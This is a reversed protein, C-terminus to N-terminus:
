DKVCRVSLGLRKEIQTNQIGSVNCELGWVNALKDASWFHCVYGFEYFQGDQDRFGGALANYGSKNNSGQENGVNGTTIDSAWGSTAALSKAIKNGTTTEDYNYGNYILYDALKQWDADTAM